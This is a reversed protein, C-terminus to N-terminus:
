QKLKEEILEMHLENIKKFDPKMPLLCKDSGYLEKIKIEMGEAYDLIWSYSRKGNRIDLLEKCDPRRVHLEGTSMLEYGTNLLRALHMAHKRDYGSEEELKARNPNRNKKWTWYEKWKKHQLRYEDKQFILIGIISSDPDYNYSYDALLAGQFDVIGKGKEYIFYAKQDTGEIPKAGLKKLNAQSETIKYWNDKDTNIIENISDLNLEAIKMFDVPKPAEKPQSNNIWKSHNKIRKMQAFAYGTYTHMIKQSLFLNRNKILTQGLWTNRQTLGGWIYDDPHSFLIELINPNADQLLKIFKSLAYYTYEFGNKEAIQRSEYDLRQFELDKGELQDIRHIGYIFEKPPILVGKIDFDSDKTAMGYAHSGAVVRLILHDFPNNIQM